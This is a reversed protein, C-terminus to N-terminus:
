LGEYRIKLILYAIRPTDQGVFVSFVAVSFNHGKRKTM